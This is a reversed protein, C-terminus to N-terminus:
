VYDHWSCLGKHLRSCEAVGTYEYFCCRYCIMTPLWRYCFKRYEQQNRLYCKKVPNSWGPRLTTSRVYPPRYIPYAPQKPARSILTPETTTTTTFEPTSTTTSKTTTTTTTAETTLTTTTGTKSTTRHEATTTATPEATATTTPEMTSTVTLETTSITPPESTTTASSETTSTTTPETTSITSSETTSSVETTSTTTFETTPEPTSAITPDTTDLRKSTSTTTTETTSISYPEITASTRTTDFSLTISPRYSFEVANRPTTTDYIQLSEAEKTTTPPPTIDIIAGIFEDQAWIGTVLSCLLIFFFNFISFM